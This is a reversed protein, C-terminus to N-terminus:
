SLATEVSQEAIRLYERAKGLWNGRKQQPDDELHAASLRARLLARRSRYFALLAPAPRDGTIDSYVALLIDGVRASGMKEAEMALFSLEDARDQIRLDRNFELCDIVVPPDTLCVHEPRLDGHAEVVMGDRDRAAFLESRSELVQLQRKRLSALLDAPLDCSQLVRYQQELAEGLRNLYPRTGLYVPERDLYFRALKRALDQLRTWDVRDARIQQDLMARRPLRRMTVLWDM